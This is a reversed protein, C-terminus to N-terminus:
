RRRPRAPPAPRICPSTGRPPRGRSPSTSCSRASVPQGPCRERGTVQLDISKDPASRRADDHGRRRNRTDLLRAPPLPTYAGTATDYGDVTVPIKRGAGGDPLTILDQAPGFFDPTAVLTLRARTTPPSRRRRQLHRRHDGAQRRHRHRDRDGFTTQSAGVQVTVAEASRPASRHPSCSADAGHLELRIEQAFVPQGTGCNGRVSGAFATVEGARSPSRTCPSPGPPRDRVRDARRRGIQVRAQPPPPADRQHRLHRGRLVPRPRRSPLDARRDDTDHGRGHPGAASSRSAAAADPAGDPVPHGLRRRARPATFIAYGTTPPSPLTAAQAPVAVLGATVTAAATLIVALRRM